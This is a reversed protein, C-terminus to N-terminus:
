KSKKQHTDHTPTSVALDEATVRCMSISSGVGLCVSQRRAHVCVCACRDTGKDTRRVSHQEHKGQKGAHTWGGIHADQADRCGYLILGRTTNTSQPQRTAVSISVSSFLCVCVVAFPQKGMGGVQQRDTDACVCPHISADTDASNARLPRRMQRKETLRENVRGHSPCRTRPQRRFPCRNRSLQGVYSHGRILGHIACLHPHTCSTAMTM